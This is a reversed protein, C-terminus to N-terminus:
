NRGAFRTKSRSQRIGISRPEQPHHQVEGEGGDGTALIASKILICSSVFVQVPRHFTGSLWWRQHAQPFSATPSDFQEHLRRAQILKINQKRKPEEKQCTKGFERKRLFVWLNWTFSKNFAPM